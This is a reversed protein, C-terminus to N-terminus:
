RHALLRVPAHAPPSLCCEDMVTVSQQRLACVAEITPTVIVRHRAHTRASPAPSTGLSSAWSAAKFVSYTCTFLNVPSDTDHSCVLVAQQRPELSCCVCMCVHSTMRHMKAPVASKSLDIFDSRGSQKTTASGSRVLKSSPKTGHCRITCRLTHIYARGGFHALILHPTEEPIFKQYGCHM